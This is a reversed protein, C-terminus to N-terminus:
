ACIESYPFTYVYRVKIFVSVTTFFFVMGPAVTLSHSFYYLLM